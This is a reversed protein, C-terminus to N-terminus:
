IVHLGTEHEVVALVFDIHHRNVVHEVGCKEEVLKRVEPHVEEAPCYARGVARIVPLDSTSDGLAIVDTLTASRSPRLRRYEEVVRELGTLKSAGQPTIDVASATSDINVETRLGAHNLVEYVRNYLDQTMQGAMPNVTVMYVKPEFENKLLSTRLVSFVTNMIERQEDTILPITERRGPFYLGCGNEIVSPLDLELDIIGLAQVLLEVYGQSRGTFVVIPPYGQERNQRAFDSYSRLRQFKRLDLPSRYPPTLCGEVDTAIFIPFAVRPAVVRVTPEFLGDLRRKTRRARYLGPTAVLLRIPAYGMVALGIGEVVRKSAGSFADTNALLIFAVGIFFILWDSQELPPKERM